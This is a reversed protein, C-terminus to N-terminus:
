SEENSEHERRSRVPNGFYVIPGDVEALNFIEALASSGELPFEYRDNGWALTITDFKVPIPEFRESPLEADHPIYALTMHPTFGHTSETEPLLQVLRERVAALAPIDVTLIYADKDDLSFRGIGNLRGSLIPTSKAYDKIIKVFNEPDGEAEGLFALTVHLDELPLGGKVALREALNKPPFLAVMGGSYEELYISEAFPIDRCSEWYGLKLVEQISYKDSLEDTDKNYIRCWARPDNPDVGRAIVMFLEEGRKAITEYQEIM